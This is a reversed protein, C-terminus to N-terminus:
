ASIVKINKRKSLDNGLRAQTMELAAKDALSQVQAEHLKAQLDTLCKKDRM